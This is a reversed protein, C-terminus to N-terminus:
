SHLLSTAVGFGSGIRSSDGAKREAIPDYTSVDM